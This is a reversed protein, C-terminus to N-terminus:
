KFVEESKPLALRKGSKVFLQQGVDISMDATPKPASFEEIVGAPARYDANRRRLESELSEVQRKLLAIEVASDRERRDIDDVDASVMEVAASLVEYSSRAKTEPRLWAGYIGSVGAVAAAVVAGFKKVNDLMAGFDRNPDSSRTMARIVDSVLGHIVTTATGVVVGLVIRTTLPLSADVWPGPVLYALVCAAVSQLRLTNHLRGGDRFVPVMSKLTQITSWVCIALVLNWPNLILEIM